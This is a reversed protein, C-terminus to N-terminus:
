LNTLSTIMLIAKLTLIRSLLHKINNIVSEQRYKTLKMTNPSFIIVDNIIYTIAVEGHALELPIFRIFCGMVMMASKPNVLHLTFVLVLKLEKRTLEKIVKPM